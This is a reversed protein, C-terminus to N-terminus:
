QLLPLVDAAIARMNERYAPRTFDASVHLVVLDVGIDALERISEAVQEASGVIATETAREMQKDLLEPV